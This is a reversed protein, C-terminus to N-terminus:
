TSSKSAPPLTAVTALTGIVFATRISKLAQYLVDNGTLDTGMVHYHGMLTATPAIFVGAVLVTWLVVRWPIEGEGRWIDAAVGGWGQRRSRAVTAILLAALAVAVASGLLVGVAARKFVDAAWQHDPDALHVGGHVLRPAVRRVQGGEEVSEKTFSVFALPRSYTAERSDVLDSLVLDLASRTRTDYAAAAGETGAAPPLLSRYHVSDLLTVVMCLLLVVASSLAPADRFVKRWNASLGPSRLVVVGYAVLALLLLWIAADTWLLVLKPM